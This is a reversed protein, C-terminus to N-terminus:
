AGADIGIDDLMIKGPGSSFHFTIRTLQTPDFQANVQLFRKLPLQYTQFVPESPEEYKGEKIKKELWPFITFTTHPLEIAQMFSDLPLEAVAGNLSQLEVTISPAPINDPIDLDRELNTM